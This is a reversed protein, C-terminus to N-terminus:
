PMQVESIPSDGARRMSVGPAAKELRTSPAPASSPEFRRRHNQAMPTPPRRTARPGAKPAEQDRRVAEDRLGARERQRSLTRTLRDNNLVLGADRDPPWLPRLMIMLAALLAIALFGGLIFIWPEAAANSPHAGDPPRGVPPSVTRAPLRRDKM